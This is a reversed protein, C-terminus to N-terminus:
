LSPLLTRLLCQLRRLSSLHCQTPVLTTKTKTVSCPADEQESLSLGNLMTSPFLSGRGGAPTAITMGGPTKMPRKSAALPTHCVGVLQTMTKKKDYNAIDRIVETFAETLSGQITSPMHTEAAEKFADSISGQITSRVNSEAELTLSETAQELAQSLSVCGVNNDVEASETALIPSNDASTQPSTQDALSPTKPAAKQPRTSSSAAVPMGTNCFLKNIFTSAGKKKKL